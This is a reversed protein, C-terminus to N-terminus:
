TLTPSGRANCVGDTMSRLPSESHASYQAGDQTTCGYRRRESGTAASGPRVLERRERTVHARRAVERGPHIGRAPCVRRRGHPRVGALLLHQVAVQVEQAAVIDVLRGPDLDVLSIVPM